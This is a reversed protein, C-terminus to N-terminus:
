HYITSFYNLFYLLKQLYKSLITISSYLFPSTNINLSLLVLTTYKSNVIITITNPNNDLFILPKGLIISNYEPSINHASITNKIIANINLLFGVINM